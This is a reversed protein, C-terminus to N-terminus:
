NCPRTVSAESGAALARAEKAMVQATVDCFMPYPMETSHGNLRSATMFKVSTYFITETADAPGFDKGRGLYSRCQQTM